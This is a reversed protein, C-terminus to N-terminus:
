SASARWCHVDYTEEFFNKLVSAGQQPNGSYQFLWCDRKTVAEIIKQRDESAKSLGAPLLEASREYFLRALSQDLPTISTEGMSRQLFVICDPECQESVQVGFKSLPDVEFALEGNMSRILRETKLEDFYAVTDPMLKVPVDLGYISVDDAERRAYTWDDSVLAFGEKALAITLTSKGAGSLGAVLMGHGASTLCASHLPAVGMMPGLVGIAIPILVTNWFKADGATQESVAASIQRSLLDFFFLDTGHFTAFIVGDRGRFMPPELAVPHTPQVLVALEFDAEGIGDSRWKELSHIVSLSNTRISGRCGAVRLEGSIPLANKELSQIRM